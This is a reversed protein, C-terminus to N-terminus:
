LWGREAFSIVDADGVVFHDLVRVDFLGLAQTLRETIRRDADSPEAVGSPHNHALIVAGANLELARKAVDRPYVSASDLTGRFLAEYRIIRHQTDLFLVAFEEHGLHRLQSRLYHRVLSPSTLANGRALQTALHRRSLELTAQLQAFKASGLGHAQCFAREDSELFPRLGGFRTLLDRALDVASRGKVGVRLFIALLEADSLAQAGLTLLKERPREGEPWHNIGM